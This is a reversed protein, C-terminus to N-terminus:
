ELAKSYEAVAMEWKGRRGHVEARRHWANAARPNIEIAKSSDAHARDLENGNIYVTARWFWAEWREPKLEIAETFEGAAKDSLGLERYSEGVRHPVEHM